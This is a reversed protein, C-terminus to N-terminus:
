SSLNKLANFAADEEAKQKSSGKGEGFFKEGIYVGMMFMKNHDPGEESLVKYLPTVGWKDQSFEQLKSKADVHLGKKLIDGLNTLIFNYIFRHAVAFGRDLYIAGILAELANALIYNKNRGGSKEEGRSLLLYQGINLSQAVQALHKGKVLASRFSTLQGESKEPFTAYLFETTVMELIADGLFELRENHTRKEAKHENVYSKHVLSCDLLQIDKFRIKIKKELTSLLDKRMTSLM